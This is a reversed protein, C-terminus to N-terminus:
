LATRPWKAFLQDHVVRAEAASWRDGLLCLLRANLLNGFVERADPDAVLPNVQACRVDHDSNETTAARFLEIFIPLKAQLEPPWSLFTEELYTLASGLLGGMERYAVYDFAKSKDGTELIRELTYNALPLAAPNDSLEGFFDHFFTQDVVGVADKPAKKWRAVPVRLFEEMGSTSMHTLRFFDLANALFAQNTPADELFRSWPESVGIVIRAMGNKSAQVLFELMKVLLGRTEDDLEGTLPYGFVQDLEDVFVMTREGASGATMRGVIQRIRQFFAALDEGYDPVIREFKAVDKELRVIPWLGAQITSTKGVASPGYIVLLKGKGAAQEQYADRLVM